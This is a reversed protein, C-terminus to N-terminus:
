KGAEGVARGSSGEELRLRRRIEEEIPDLHEYFMVFVEGPLCSDLGYSFAERENLVTTLRNAPMGARIAEARIIAAIEGPQRGRLDEDEKIILRQFGQAAVRALEKIEADTRDGPVTVCGVFSSGAKCKKLTQIIERVGAANHGYDVWVNVGGIEYFNLRGRSNQGDPLFNGLSQRISEASLGLAWAAAVAALANEANHRARGGLTIPLQRVGCIRYSQSGQCYLIVGRRVFVAGGGRGLHKRVHINDKHQSFLIVKGNTRGAMKLVYPDDANLVVYSHPKVVEAVLSKVRTLDDLDEIGYQGLHDASINTIVAVDAYDYALGARLIGGRATELVAVQVEPHSLVTRASEPGTTDGEVLLKGQVYIGDTTAMGVSLKQDLLMKGIMRTTTTKGNTGTVAVIPIRGNGTPLVLNVIAKGVDKAQGVSPYHHMRIGPAANIEIVRGNAKRYSAAIDSSVIDVGAIDLGVVKAAYVALDVNDPHVSDTVDLAIGGTSLNAGDRLYVIEGAAPVTDMTLKKQALTLIVVPDIRIKTLAKEHDEGRLPNANTQEVLEAITARGNGVVHAPIRESAAALQGGVVLLRYHHGEIFEEVIVDSGYIQAVRFATRVEGESTLKLSVGKGQNGNYPKVVVPGGIVQLAAAAESEEKAVLGFPVPIGAAKLLRKTLGKDGAIDVGICGTRDTMAAQLRRQNRGYGLQLLSYENLRRFPIGREQCAKIIMKTSLGLDNEAIVKRLKNVIERTNFEKGSLLSDVLVVAQRFAEIGGEKSQYNFIIEYVGPREPLSMTKGYSIDQGARTLLEITVHETVHGILTGEALRELFGGPKGRSCHHESLGPLYAVLRDNFDGLRDSTKDAWERLDLIARIVPRHSYVNAGEIAQIQKIEM